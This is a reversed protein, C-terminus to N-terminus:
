GKFLDDKPVPTGIASFFSGCSVRAIRGAPIPYWCLVDDWIVPCQKQVSNNISSIIRGYQNNENISSDHSLTSSNNEVLDPNCDDSFVSFNTDVFISM